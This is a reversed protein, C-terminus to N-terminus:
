IDNNQTIYTSWGHLFFPKGEESKFSFQVSRGKGRVKIRAQQTNVRLKTRYIQQAVSVRPSDQTSAFDWYNQFLCSSDPFNGLYAVVYNTQMFRQAQGTINYGSILYSEYSVGDSSSAAAWDRYSSASVTSWTGAFTTGSTLETTFYKFISPKSESVSMYATVVEGSPDLVLDGSSTVNEQEFESSVGRSNIVGNVFIGSSTDITWPYFAGKKLNFSLVRDYNMQNDIDGSAGSSRFIWRVVQNNRDFAGKAYYKNLTPIENFFTQITERTISQVGDDGTEGPTIAWIGEYNWWLPSGDVDVFSFPGVAGVSSLKKVSYDKASFGGGGDNSGSVAWIGNTCFILLKNGYVFLKVVSAINPITIVGGDTDLLDRNTRATPDNVQYCYGSQAVDELIQSYYINTNYGQYDVGAYFVRGAYFAVCKPRFYSSTIDDDSLGAIGSAVDREQLFAKLIYSGATVKTNPTGETDFMTTNLEEEADLYYWWYENLAPMTTESTDWYDLAVSTTGGQIKVSSGWGRNLLNYEDFDDLAARTSTPRTSFTAYTATSALGDFDRIEVEIETITISPGSSNFQIRLPSCFPHTVFLLGKATDFQCPESKPSPAGGAQYDTLDVTFAEMGPSLPGEADEEYFYLVEGVQVVVYVLTGSGAVGKWVYETIVSGDRTFSDQEFSGEYDFGQRRSVIGNNSFLCDWTETCANEPFNLSSAETILGKTFDNFIQVQKGRSM